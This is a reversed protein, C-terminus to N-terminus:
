VQPPRFIGVLNSKPKDCRYSTLHKSKETLFNIKLSHEINSSIYVLEQKEKLNENEKKEKEAAKKLQKSLFCHGNCKNVKMDKQICLNKAIEEQNVKFNMYIFFNGISPVLM